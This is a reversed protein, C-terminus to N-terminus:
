GSRPSRPGIFPTRDADGPDGQREALAFGAVLAAQTPLLALVQTTLASSM